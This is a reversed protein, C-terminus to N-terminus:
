KKSADLIHKFTCILFNMARIDGEKLFGEIWCSKEHLNVLLSFASDLYRCYATLLVHERDKNPPIVTFSPFSEAIKDLKIIKPNYKFNDSRVYRHQHQPQPQSLPAIHCFKNFSLPLTLRNYNSSYESDSKYNIEIEPLCFPISLIEIAIHVKQQKKALISKVQQPQVKARLHSDHLLAISLDVLNYRHPTIYLTCELNKESRQSLCGIEIEETKHVLCKLKLLSKRFTSGKIRELYQRFEGEVEREFGSAERKGGGLSSGRMSSSEGQSRSMSTFQPHGRESGHKSSSRMSRIENDRAALKTKM